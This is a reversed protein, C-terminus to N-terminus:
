LGQFFLGRKATGVAVSYPETRHRIFVDFHSFQRPLLYDRDLKRLQITNIDFYVRSTIPAQPSTPEDNNGGDSSNFLTVAGYGLGGAVAFIALNQIVTSASSSGNSSSFNRRSLLVQNSTNSSKPCIMTKSIMAISRTTTSLAAAMILPQHILQLLLLPLHHYHYIIDIIFTLSSNLSIIRKIAKSEHSYAEM